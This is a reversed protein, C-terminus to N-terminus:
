RCHREGPVPWTPRQVATQASEAYCGRRPFPICLAAPWRGPERLAEGPARILTSATYDMRRADTVVGDLFAKVNPFQSFYAEMHAKAEDRSSGLRSALGFAEMGYLLGFNIVKAMRRMEGSVLDAPVGFVRAATATHIDMGAAFAEILGADESLHAMVRLEIQSYDAVVFTSGEPAV